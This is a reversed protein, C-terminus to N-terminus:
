LIDSPLVSQFFIMLLTGFVPSYGLARKLDTEVMYPAKDAQIPGAAAPLVLFRHALKIAMCIVQYRSQSCDGRSRHSSKVVNHSDLIVCLDNTTSCYRGFLLTVHCPAPAIGPSSCTTSWCVRRDKVLVESLPVRALKDPPRARNGGIRGAMLILL